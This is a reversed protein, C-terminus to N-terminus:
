VSLIQKCYNTEPEKLLLKAVVAAAYNYLQSNVWENRAAENDWNGVSYFLGENREDQYANISICGPSQSSKGLFETFFSSFLPAAGPKITYTTIATIM